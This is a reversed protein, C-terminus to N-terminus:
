ALKLLFLAVLRSKQVLSDIELTEKNTHIESGVVGMSDIVALGEAAVINGDCVGGSPRLQLQYGEERACTQLAKFLDASEQTFPKPARTQNSRISLSIGEHSVQNAINEIQKIVTEFDLTQITRINIRCLAQDPVINVPGGGSIYGCNITIGKEINCLKNVELIFEALSLIASRGNQFDKGAHAPKGKAIVDINASGKRSSVLAGDPFAPEFIFGLANNKAANVLLPYSGISGVEEDPNIMIEWGINDKAGYQEFAELAILMVVLGGKMDAVGPGQLTNEGIQKVNQFPHTVPFVTDMHGCLFIQRSANKRKTIRLAKGHPQEILAGGPSSIMRPKLDIIEINGGLSAFERSLAELMKQLGVLNDSHSNISSFAKVLDVMRKKQTTIWALIDSIKTTETM